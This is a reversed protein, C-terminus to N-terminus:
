PVKDLQSYDWIDESMTMGNWLRNVISANYIDPGDLHQLIHVAIDKQLPPQSAGFLPYVILKRKATSETIKSKDQRLITTRFDGFSPTLPQNTDSMTLSTIPQQLKSQTAVIVPLPTGAAPGNHGPKACSGGQNKCDICKCNEGCPVGAQFCECYKKQCFSKKCHCGHHHTKVLAKASGGTSNPHYHCSNHKLDDSLAHNIKPKFANPNRELTVAIADKRQAEFKPINHCGVCKCNEDCYGGSAFCECYLKLCQSKKCNCPNRKKPTNTTPGHLGGSGNSAVLPTSSIVSSASGTTSTQRLDVGPSELRSPLGVSDLRPKKRMVEDSTAISGPTIFSMAAKSELPTHLTLPGHDLLKHKRSLTVRPPPTADPTDILCLAKFAKANKNPKSKEKRMSENISKITTARGGATHQTFQLTVSKRGGDTTRHSRGPAASTLTQINPFAAAAEYCATSPSDTFELRQTVVRAPCETDTDPTRDKGYCCGPELKALPPEPTLPSVTVSPSSDLNNLDTIAPLSQAFTLFSRNDDDNTTIPTAVVSPLPSLIFRYKEGQEVKWGSFPSALPGAKEASPPLNTNTGGEQKKPRKKKLMVPTTLAYSSVSDKGMVPSRFFKSPSYIVRLPSFMKGSGDASSPQRVPSHELEHEPLMTSGFAANTGKGPSAFMSRFDLCDDDEGAREVDSGQMSMLCSNMAFDQGTGHSM